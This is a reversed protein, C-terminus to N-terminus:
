VKKQLWPCVGRGESKEVGVGWVMTLKSFKEKDRNSYEDTNGERMLRGGGIRLGGVRGDKCSTHNVPACLLMPPPVVIPVVRPSMARWHISSFAARWPRGRPPPTWFPPEVHGLGTRVFGEGSCYFWKMRVTHM